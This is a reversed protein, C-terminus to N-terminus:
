SANRPEASLPGARLLPKGARKGAEIGTEDVGVWAFVREHLVALVEEVGGGRNLIRDVAELAGSHASM